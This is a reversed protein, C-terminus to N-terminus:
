VTYGKHKRVLRHLMTLTLLIAVVGLSPWGIELVTQQVHLSMNVWAYWSMGGILLVASIPWALGNTGRGSEAAAQMGWTDKESQSLVHYWGAVFHTIRVLMYMESPFWLWAFVTDDKTRNKMSMATRIGLLWSIVPPLLWIPHFEFSGLDLAGLLLLLFSLRTVINFLMAINERWQLRLNPHFPRSKMLEVGGSSWKVQQGYLSRLSPMGGVVARARASIKTSYGASKIQISLLSDEVSSDTVWPTTQRNLRMTEKLASVRFISCQGGLVTMNRNRLLNDMEFGAFQQRQGAILFRGILGLHPEHDVSYIASLGGIRSDDDMEEILHQICRKDLVTDGDVGLIYTSDKAVSWGYNLAGVKKDKNKGIDHVVVTTIYIEGRYERIHEEEAFEKAIWYTDDTTNNIIVHIAEPPRTQDLLSQITDAISDEENYAPIICSITSVEDLIEMESSELYALDTTM